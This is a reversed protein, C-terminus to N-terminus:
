SRWPGGAILLLYLLCFVPLAACLSDIRDLIGGHGPLIVGSDKVGRHRKVMSELLDGLVSALATTAVVLAWQWWLDRHQPSAALFVSALVLVTALGGALGELTKGPSVAPALKHRGLARGTFYAGVDAGAVVLVVLLILWYGDDRQVLVGMALWAPVLVLVGMVLRAAVSGWLLASSPYGQVWLLALAWWLCGLLLLPRVVAPDARGEALGSLLFLAAMVGAVLVLYALRATAGLLGALRSWEWAGVAIVLGAFLAFQVPGFGFLAGLFLAALVLATLIRQKLV